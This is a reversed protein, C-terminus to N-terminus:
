KEDMNLALDYTCIYQCENNESKHLRLLHTEDGHDVIENEINGKLLSAV